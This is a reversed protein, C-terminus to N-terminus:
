KALEEEIIQAYVEFPRTGAVQRGNVFVTPVVSVGEAKGKRVDEEVEARRVGSDLCSDFAGRDLGVQDAVARVGAASYTSYGRYGGQRWASFVADRYEWFRGQDAACLTAEAARVSEPGMVAFQRVELHAQGTKVYREVIEAEAGRHLEYCHPCQFDNYVVIQVKADPPGLGRREAVKTPTTALADALGPVMSTCCGPDAKDRATASVTSGSAVDMLSLAVMAGGLVLGLCTALALGGDRWRPAM